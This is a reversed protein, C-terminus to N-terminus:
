QIANESERLDVDLMEPHEMVERAMFGGCSTDDALLQPLDRKQLNIEDEVHELAEASTRAWRELASAKMKNVDGKGGPVQYESNTLFYLLPDKESIKEGLVANEFRVLGLVKTERATYEKTERIRHSVEEDDSDSEPNLWFSPLKIDLPVYNYYASKPAVRDGLLKDHKNIAMRAMKRAARM